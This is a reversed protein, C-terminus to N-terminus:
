EERNQKMCLGYFIHLGNICWLILAFIVAPSEEKICEINSRFLVVGGIIFWVFSFISYLTLLVIVIIPISNIIGLLIMTFTFTMILNVVFSSIGAGLIYDSVNIGIKDFHDCSGPSLAGMIITVISFALLIICFFIICAFIRTQRQNQLRKLENVTDRFKNTTEEMNRKNLKTHEDYLNIHVTDYTTDTEM